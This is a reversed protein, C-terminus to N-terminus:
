RAHPYIPSLDTFKQGAREEHARADLEIEVEGARRDREEASIEDDRRFNVAQARDRM